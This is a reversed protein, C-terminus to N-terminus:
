VLPLSVMQHSPVSNPPPEFTRPGMSFAHGLPFLDTPQVGLGQTTPAAAASQAIPDPERVTSIPQSWQSVTSPGVAIIDHKVTCGHCVANLLVPSITLPMDDTCPGQLIRTLVVDSNFLDQSKGEIPVLRLRYAPDPNFFMKVMSRYTHRPRPFGGKTPFPASPCWNILQRKSEKSGRTNVELGGVQAAQRPQHM